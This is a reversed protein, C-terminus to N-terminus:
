GRNTATSQSDLWEALPILKAPKMIVANEESGYDFVYYAGEGAKAVERRIRRTGGDSVKLALGQAGFRVAVHFRKVEVDQSVTVEAMDTIIRAPTNGLKWDPKTTPTGDAKRVPTTMSEGPCSLSISEWIAIGGRAKIWEAIKAAHEESVVYNPMTM